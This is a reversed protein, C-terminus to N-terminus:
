ANIKEVHHCAVYHGKEVERWEPEKQACCEDAYPCRTRFRCGTPPNLPSPVDGQLVIRKSARAKIPDAIPIASILSKTYPHLSRAVLEYSDALEVMKGLYMVGIRDSIHKVVSLDHAIFLYTLGMQEQLEEFMNVVQAQISVDLASIPEDCVIFQPNVALARAIGVRQRQGGSFEHPYRNAHESNLGVKELMSIIRDHREKKNAALKHIDIAEGVIDGVTMRPDLSAYPDQFVMQMKQRYPLMDVKVKNEVDLIVNGDFTIKGGTPEYLRLISRGTTTKGCGSEGVLGLTEGRNVFFSVDDVAKVFKRNKGMGGAPFYQKLHEVQLLKDSM